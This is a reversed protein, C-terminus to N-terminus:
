TQPWHQTLRAIIALLASLVVTLMGRSYLNIGLELLIRLSMAAFVNIRVTQPSNFPMGTCYQHIAPIHALAENFAHPTRVEM